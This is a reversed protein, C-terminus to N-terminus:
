ASPLASALSIKGRATGAAWPKGSASTQNAPDARFIDLFDRAVGESFNGILQKLQIKCHNVIEM